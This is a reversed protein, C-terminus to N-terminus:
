NSSAPYRTPRLHLKPAPYTCPLDPRGHVLPSLPKELLESVAGGFGFSNVSARRVGGEPVKPWEMLATPIELNTYHPKVTPSLRNFHLNPPVKGNRLALSVKLLSALGATGETHGIVTKISGVLLKPDSINRKFNSQAGYFATSIAESEVPDGAPTGTGHAEFYQPRDSPRSLDLGARQYTQHILSAQATPSPM